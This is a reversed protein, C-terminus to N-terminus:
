PIKDESVVSLDNGRPAYAPLLTALFTLVPAQFLRGTGASGAGVAGHQSYPALTPQQPM